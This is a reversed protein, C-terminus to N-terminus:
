AAERGLLGMRRKRRDADAQQLEQQYGNGQALQAFLEQPNGGQPMMMPSPQAPQQEGGLLGSQQAINMAPKGYQM